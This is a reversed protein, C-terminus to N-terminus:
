VTRLPSVSDSIAASFFMLPPQFFSCWSFLSYMLSGSRIRTPWFIAVLHDARHGPSSVPSGAPRGVPSAIRRPRRRTRHVRPPGWRAGGDGAPEGVAPEDARQGGPPGVGRGEAIPHSPRPRAAACRQPHVATSAFRWAGAFGEKVRRVPRLQRRSALRCCAVAVAGRFCVVFGEYPVAPWSACVCCCWAM